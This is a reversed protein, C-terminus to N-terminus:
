TEDLNEIDALQTGGHWWQHPVVGAQKPAIISQYMMRQSHHLLRPTATIIFSSRITINTSETDHGRYSAGM